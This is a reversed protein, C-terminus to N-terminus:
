NMELKEASRRTQEVKGSLQSGKPRGWDGQRSRRGLKVPARNGAM